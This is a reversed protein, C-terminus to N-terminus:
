TPQYRGEAVASLMDRAYAAQPYENQDSIKQLAALAAERDMALTAIASKLRVQANPHLLLPLLLRSQDGHRGKLEAKVLEMDGFLKNYQTTNDANLAEDQALAISTFRQVLEHENLRSIIPRNM